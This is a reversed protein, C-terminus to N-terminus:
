CSLPAFEYGELTFDKDAFSYYTNKGDVKKGILSYFDKDISVTNDEAGQYLVTGNKDIVTYEDNNELFWLKGFHDSCVDDFTGEIVVNGQFDYLKGGAFILDGHVYPREAFEASVVNGSLDMLVFSYTDDYKEALIYDDVIEKPIFGDLSIDFVKENDSNYIAATNGETLRYYGNELVSAGDPLKVGKADVIVTENEDTVYELLDGYVKIGNSASTGGVGDIPKGTTVDYVCWAGKFFLDGDSAGFSFRKDSYYVLAEDKDTTQESVECVYIYRENLVKVSAYKMPVLEKGTADVAGMCNLSAVDSASSEDATSVLFYNELGSCYTYKAGTDSKGDLTMIGYNGSEDKYYVGGDALYFINNDYDLSGIKEASLGVLADGVSSIEGDQSGGDVEDSSNEGCAVITFVMMISLLLALLKKM